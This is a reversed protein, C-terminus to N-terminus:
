ENTDSMPTNRSSKDAGNPKAFINSTNEPRSIEGAGDCKSRAAKAAASRKCVILQTRCPPLGHGVVVTNCPYEAFPSWRLPM